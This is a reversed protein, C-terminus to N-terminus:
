GIRLVYEGDGARRPFTRNPLHPLPLPTPHNLTWRQPTHSPNHPDHPIKFRSPPIPSLFNRNRLNPQHHPYQGDKQPSPRPPILPGNQAPPLHQFLSQPSQKKSHRSNQDTNLTNNLNQEIQSSSTRQHLPRTSPLKWMRFHETRSGSSHEVSISGPRVYTHISTIPFTSQARMSLIADM